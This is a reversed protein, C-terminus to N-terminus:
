TERKSLDTHKLPYGRSKYFAWRERGNKALTEDRGVIEIMREFRAFFKPPTPCLSILVDADGAHDNEHDIVIPTFERLSSALTCHPVFAEDPKEWLLRDLADTTAADPTAIRLTRKSAFVKLALRHTASIPDAVGTYFEISTM